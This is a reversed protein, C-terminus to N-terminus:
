RLLTLKRVKGDLECVAPEFEPIEGDLELVISVPRCPLFFFGRLNEGALSSTNTLDHFDIPYDDKAITSM